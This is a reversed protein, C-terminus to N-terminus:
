AEVFAALGAMGNVFIADGVLAAMEDAVAPACDFWAEWSSYTATGVTVPRLRHTAVYGTVPLPSEDIRYTYFTELDSHAMLTEVFDGGPITLHRVGGVTTADGATMVAADVGPNWEAVGDFSRIAAWVRAIPAEIIRSRFVHM